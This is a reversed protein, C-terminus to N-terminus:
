FIYKKLMLVNFEDYFCYFNNIDFVNKFYM